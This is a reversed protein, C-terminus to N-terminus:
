SSTGEGTRQSTMTAPWPRAFGGALRRGAHREGTDLAALLRKTHRDYEAYPVGSDKVLAIMRSELLHCCRRVLEDGDPTLSLQRRNGGAPDPSADLLGARALAATMRSVSPETVGLREALARQTSAGLQGVMFLALFRSYSVDMEAQLIRDAARDLRATLAHLSYSLDRAM